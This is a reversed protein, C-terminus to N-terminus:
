GDGRVELAWDDTDVTWDRFFVVLILIAGVASVAYKYLDSSGTPNVVVVNSAEIEPGPRVIGYVQVVGGPQVDVDFNSVTPRVTGEATTVAVTATAASRDYDVVRGFVLATEGYHADYDDVLDSADPSSLAYRGSVDYHVGLAVVASLLVALTAVRQWTEMGPVALVTAFGNRM